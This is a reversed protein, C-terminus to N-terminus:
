CKWHYGNTFAAPILPGQFPFFLFRNSNLQANWKYFSLIRLIPSYRTEAIIWHVYLANLPVNVERPASKFTTLKTRLRYLPLATGSLIFVALPHTLVVRSREAVTIVGSTRSSKRNNGTPANGNGLLVTKCGPVVHAPGSVPSWRGAPGVCPWNM